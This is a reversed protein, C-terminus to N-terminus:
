GRMRQVLLYNVRTTETDNCMSSLVIADLTEAAIFGPLDASSGNVYLKAVGNKVELLMNIRDVWVNAPLVANENGGVVFLVGKNVDFRIANSGASGLKVELQYETTIDNLGLSIVDLVLAFNENNMDIASGLTAAVSSLNGLELYGNPTVVPATSTNGSTGTLGTTNSFTHELATLRSAYVDLPHTIYDKLTVDTASDNIMELKTSVVEVPTTLSVTRRTELGNIDIKFVHLDWIHGFKAVQVQPNKTPETDIVDAISMTREQQLNNNRFYRISANKTAPNIEVMVYHRADDNIIYKLKM